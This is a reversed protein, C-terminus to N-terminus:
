ITKKNKSTIIILLIVAFVATAIAVVQSAALRGPVIYLIYMPIRLMELFFRGVAYWILYCCFIQGDTKKKRRLLVLIVLGLINWLSEYLFLPHSGMSGNVTMNWPLTTPKGYVEGNVFNGWRGIAQGILIAPVCIDFTNLVSIKKRRCYCFITIIGAIIGGYIALGGNWIKFIDWIDTMEDFAFIVYYIRAGIIGFIMCLLAIDWLNDRKLGRKECDRYIFLFGAAFGALIILAYWHVSFPGLRFAIPNIALSLNLSPFEIETM